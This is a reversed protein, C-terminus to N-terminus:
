NELKLVALKEITPIDRPNRVELRVGTGEPYREAKDLLQLIRRSAKGQRAAAVARDGLIFAVHICGLCPALYVITRKGRKLRLSWGSKASYCKWEQVAVQHETELDAILRDWIPQVPGLATALEDRTPQKAWGIFANPTMDTETM